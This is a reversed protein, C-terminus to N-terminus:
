QMNINISINIDINIHIRISININNNRNMNSKQQPPHVADSDLRHAKVGAMARQQAYAIRRIKVMDSSYLGRGLLM